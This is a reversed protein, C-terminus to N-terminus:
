RVGKRVYDVAVILVFAVSLALILIRHPEM